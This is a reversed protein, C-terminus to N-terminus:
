LRPDFPLPQAGLLSVAQAIDPHFANILYNAHGSGYVTLPLIASPLRLVPSSRTDFWEDGIVQTEASPPHANWSVPLAKLDLDVIADPEVALTVHGHKVTRLVDSDVHVVVELMALALTDSAYLIRRDHEMEPDASNWRGGYRAAGFGHEQLTSQTVYKWKSIRHLTLTM